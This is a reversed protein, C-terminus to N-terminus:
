SERWFALLRLRGCRMRVGLLILKWVIRVGIHTVAFDVALQGGGSGEAVRGPRM